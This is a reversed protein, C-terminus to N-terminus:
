KKRSLRPFKERLHKRLTHAKLGLDEEAAKEAVNSHRALAKAYYHERVNEIVEKISFGKPPFPLDPLLAHKNNDLNLIASPDPPIESRELPVGNYVTTSLKVTNELQRVNGISWDDKKFAEICAESFKVKLDDKAIFYEILEPIDEIRSALPDITILGMFRSFLDRRFQGGKVLSPLDRNTAGIVRVNVKKDEDSGVPTMIGYEIVKLLKTQIEADADGIEDIFLTGGDCSLFLGMREKHAGTYAGKEHGFLESQILSSSKGGINIDRFRKDAIHSHEHLYEAVLQKGSGVDGLILMHLDTAAYNFIKEKVSRISASQGVLRPFDSDLKLLDREEGVSELEAKMKSLERKAATPTKVQPFNDIELDVFQYPRKRRQQFKKEFSQVLRANPILGSKQLLVWCTTMTPTGSTINIIKEDELISHTKMVEQTKEYMVDYIIDYDIPNPIDITVIEVELDKELFQMYDKIKEGLEVFDINDRIETEDIITRTAFLFVMDIKEILSQFITLTAGFTNTQKDFTQDHVGIFSFYVM